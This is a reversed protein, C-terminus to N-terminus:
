EGLVTQVQPLPTIRFVVENDKILGMKERAVKELYHPDEELLQKEELLKHKKRKLAYIQRDYEANTLRLDQVRTYSPLFIILTLVSFVILIVANRVM